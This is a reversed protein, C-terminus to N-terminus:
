KSDNTPTISAKLEGKQRKECLVLIGSTTILALIFIFGVFHSLTKIQDEATRYPVRKYRTCDLFGNGRDVCSPMDAFVLPVSQFPLTYEFSGILFLIILFLKTFTKPM